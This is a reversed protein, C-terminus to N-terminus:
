PQGTTVQVAQQILGCRGTRRKAAEAEPEVWASPIDENEDGPEFTWGHPVASDVVPHKTFRLPGHPLPIRQRPPTPDALWVGCHERICPFEEAAKRVYTELDGGRKAGVFRRRNGGTESDRAQPCWVFDAM